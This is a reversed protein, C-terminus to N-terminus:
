NTGPLDSLSKESKIHKYKSNSDKRVLVKGQATWCFKFNNEKAFDRAQFFLKRTSYPLHEDVYIPSNDDLMGVHKRNLRSSAQKSKNFRRVATIFSSKMQVSNFEVVIAKPSGRKGPRRYIDRIDHDKIATGLTNGLKEIMGILDRETENKSETVNRVEVASSRSMYLGEELRRELEAMSKRVEGRESELSDIRERIGDYQAKISSIAAEFCLNSRQIDGCQSKVLAVDKVLKSITADQETKWSSLMLMLEKKFDNLDQITIYDHHTYPSPECRPRKSRVTIPQIDVPKDIASLDSESHSHPVVNHPSSPPTRQVKPM